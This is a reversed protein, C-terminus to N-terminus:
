RDSIRGKLILMKRSPELDVGEEGLAAIRDLCTNEDPAVTRADSFKDDWIQKGHDVGIWVYLGVSM